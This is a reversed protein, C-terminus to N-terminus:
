FNVITILVTIIAVSLFSRPIASSNSSDDGNSRGPHSQANERSKGTESSAADDDSTAINPSRRRQRPRGKRNERAKLAAEEAARRIIDLPYTCPYVQEFGPPIDEGPPIFEADYYHISKADCTCAHGDAWQCVRGAPTMFDKCYSNEGHIRFVMPNWVSNICSSDYCAKIEIPDPSMCTGNDSGKYDICYARDIPCVVKHGPPPNRPPGPRVAKVGIAVYPKLELIYPQKIIYRPRATTDPARFATPIWNSSNM